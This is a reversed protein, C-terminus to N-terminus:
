CNVLAQPLVIDGDDSSSEQDMDDEHGMSLDFIKRRTPVTWTGAMLSEARMEPIYRYGLIPYSAPRPHKPLIGQVWKLLYTTADSNLTGARHNKQSM